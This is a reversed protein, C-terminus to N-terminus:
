AISSFLVTTWSPFGLLTTPKHNPRGRAVTCRGKAIPGLDYLALITTM